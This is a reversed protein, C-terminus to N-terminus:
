KPLYAKVNERVYQIFEPKERVKTWIDKLDKREQVKNNTVKVVILAPGTIKYAKALKANKDDQFDVYRFEVTGDKVQKEFGTTISEEAYSGMKLCTPCRETRHFYLALVRDAPPESAGVSAASSAALTVMSVLVFALRNM